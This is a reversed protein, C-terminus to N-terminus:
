LIQAVARDFVAELFQLSDLLLNRLFSCFSGQSQVAVDLIARPFHHVGVRRDQREDKAFSSGCRLLVQVDEDIIARSCKESIDKRILGAVGRRNCEVLCERHQWKTHFADVGVVSLLEFSGEFLEAPRSVKWLLEGFRVPWLRVPFSLPDDLCDFLHKASVPEGRPFLSADEVCDDAVVVVESRM